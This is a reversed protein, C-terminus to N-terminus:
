YYHSREILKDVRNGSAVNCFFKETDQSLLLGEKFEEDSEPNLRLESVPKLIGNSVAASLEQRMWEKGNEWESEPGVDTVKVKEPRTGLDALNEETKVHYLRELDTGHRIQIVRNRHFTSLSKKESTVWCLAIISDGCIIYEDIWDELSKRVLWCMNSGNTLCQLELKPITSNKPALLNRALIQQCSFGGSRLRFGGWCAQNLMANSADVKQILRMKEDVADSPMVARNFKLGRLKEWLLFQHLWKSRLEDSMPSTWDPTASVTESLLMKAEALIPGLKRTLDWISAFKSTVQKRNLQRPCFEDIEEMCTGTFFQTKPDLRGRRRKGFHLAPVRVVFLDLKPYWPSGAISISVGDKSVKADPDEGSYTWCKCKLNVMSFTQDADQALQICDERVAKSDGLDDVYRRKEILKKVNPKDAEIIDGLKKMACESQASVSSVGYILTKIVGELIPSNPDLEAQYLFRQLNWQSPILKCTNYFQQIDGTIAYRGVRFNLVLNLLNLSDVKGQCVLENLSKGGTGDARSATRASADLVPRAPTTVSDSFAIRWPIFYQIPKHIFMSLEDPSLEHLFSAHSNDFLKKFAKVILEKTEPQGGYQRVQQELVKKARPLNSTLFQQEEGRLPLSCIIQKQDLDLSVSQEIMEMEAEERVSLSETRDSNKCSQCDRCKVCRYNMEIGTEQELRLKRIERLTEGSEDDDLAAILCRSCVSGKSESNCSTNFAAAYERMNNTIAFSEEEITLPNVPIKPPGMLRVKQLGETFHTLLAAANGVREALFQFSTHPGGIIANESSDHSVLRSKYITLGSDLEHIPIPQILSYHVGLLIDVKGGAIKPVKCSRLFENERDSAKIEKVAQTTEIAPFDCTIQNLTVGRVLQKKGDIRNLQGLWEEEAVTTIDGVGGM